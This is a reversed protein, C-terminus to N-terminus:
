EKNNEQQQQTRVKQYDGKGFAANGGLRVADARSVARHEAGDAGGASGTHAAGGAGLRDLLM